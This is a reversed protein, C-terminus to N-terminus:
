QIVERELCISEAFAMRCGQRDNNSLASTHIYRSPHPFGRICTEHARRGDNMRSSVQWFAAFLTGELLKRIVSPRRDRWSAIVASVRLRSTPAPLSNTSPHSMRNAARFYRCDKSLEFWREPRDGPCSAALVKARKIRTVVQWSHRGIGVKIAIFQKAGWSRASYPAPDADSTNRQAPGFIAIRRAHFLPATVPLKGM